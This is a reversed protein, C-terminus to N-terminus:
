KSLALPAPLSLSPFASPVPDPFSAELAKVPIASVRNPFFPHLMVGWSLSLSLSLSSLSLTELFMISTDIDHTSRKITFDQVTINYRM